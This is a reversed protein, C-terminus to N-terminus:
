QEVFKVIDYSEPDLGVNISGAVGKAKSITTFMAPAVNSGRTWYGGSKLKIAYFTEVNEREFYEKDAKPISEDLMEDFSAGGNYFYAHVRYDTENLREAENFDYEYDDEREAGSIDFIAGGVVAYNEHDIYQVGNEDVECWKEEVIGDKVLKSFVELANEKTSIRKIIGANRQMDSM